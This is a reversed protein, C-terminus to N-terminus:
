DTGIQWEASLVQSGRDGNDLRYRVRIKRITRRGPRAIQASFAIWKGTDSPKLTAGILPGDANFGYRHLYKDELLSFGKGNRAISFLYFRANTLFDGGDLVNAATVTATHRMTLIPGGFWITEGVKAHEFSSVGGSPHDKFAPATGCASLTLLAAVLLAAGRRLPGETESQDPAM